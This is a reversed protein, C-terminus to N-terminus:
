AAEEQEETKRIGVGKRLMIIRCFNYVITKGTLEARVAEMGRRRIQGFEHCHKLSFMLSEVASRNRRAEKLTEGNYVEEGLLRLGKAGSFSVDPIGFENMKRLNDASTYGDDFSGVRPVVGTNAVAGCVLPMLMASDAANGEPVLMATVLGNPSRAIQPKYGVVPVRDGKAIWSAARDATSLVRHTGKLKRGELVREECRVHIHCVDALDSITRDWLRGLRARRIPDLLATEPLGCIRGAEEGFRFILKASIKLYKRYLKRREKATKAVNISFDLSKLAALWEGTRFERFAPLGFTALDQGSRHIRDLLRHMLGSDTPHRTNAACSTSDGCIEDFEDLGEVFALQMQCRLILQRTEEGILNVNDGVTRLGPMGLGRGLLFSYVSMSDLLREASEASYVSHFYQSIALFALVTEPLMRRRGGHLPTAKPPEAVEPELGPLAPTGREMWAKQECRVQKKAMGARDQDARIAEYIEPFRFGLEGAEGILEGLFASPVPLFLNGDPLPLEVTTAAM